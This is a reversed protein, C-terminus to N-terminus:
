FNIDYVGVVTPSSHSTIFPPLICLCSKVVQVSIPILLEDHQNRGCVYVAAAVRDPSVPVPPLEIDSIQAPLPGADECVLESHHM